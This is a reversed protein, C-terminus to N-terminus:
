KGSNAIQIPSPVGNIWEAKIEGFKKEYEILHHSLYQHLRKAHQPTLAYARAEEGSLFWFVFAEQNSATKIDECFIKPIKNLDM